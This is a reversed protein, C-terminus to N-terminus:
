TRFFRPMPRPFERLMGSLAVVGALLLIALVIAVAGIVVGAIAYPRSAARVPEPAGSGLAILGLVLAVIALALRIGFPDCCCVLSVIGCVLSAIAIGSPKAPARIVSEPAPPPVPLTRPPPAPSEPSPPLAAPGATPAQGGVKAACEGCLPRGAVEQICSACFM